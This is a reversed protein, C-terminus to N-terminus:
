RCLSLPILAGRLDRRPSGLVSACNGSNLDFAAQVEAQLLFGEQRCHDMYTLLLVALDRGLGLILRKCFSERSDM